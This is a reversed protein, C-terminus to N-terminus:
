STRWKRGAENVDQLRLRQTDTLPQPTELTVHERVGDKATEDPTFRTTIIQSTPGV